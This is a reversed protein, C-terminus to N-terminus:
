KNEDRRACALLLDKTKENSSALYKSVAGPQALRRSCGACGVPTPDASGGLVEFLRILAILYVVGWRTQPPATRPKCKCFSVTSSLRKLRPSTTLPKTGFVWWTQHRMHTRWILQITIIENKVANSKGVVRAHESEGGLKTRFHFFHRRSSIGLHKDSFVDVESFKARHTIAHKRQQLPKVNNFREGQKKTKQKRASVLRFDFDRKKQQLRIMTYKLRSAKKTSATNYEPM